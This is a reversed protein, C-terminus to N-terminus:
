EYYIPMGVISQNLQSYYLKNQVGVKYIRTTMYNVRRELINQSYCPMQSVGVQQLHFLIWTTEGVVRARIVRLSESVSDCLVNM